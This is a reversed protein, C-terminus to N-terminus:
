PRDPGARAPARDSLGREPECALPPRRLAGPHRRPPRRSGTASRAGREWTRRSRRAWVLERLNPYAATLAAAAEVPFPYLQELRAVAVADSRGAGRPRRHRLLAQGLLARAGDGGRPRRRPDDIVPEFGGEALDDLTSRAQKLRLLGKPTMVVLPRATADLAQRRLLHFYQAATTCNAVRINEQAALQLFRELKASSHEPGNGEYGHPLLLTLRSRRDGSRSAPSSSSTSSSRPATSSTASSPRGSSSPTPRRSRTATSSGSCAYESLPSNYIEMSAGAEPLHQIPAYREGTRSRAPGRSPALLHRARHGPRLPSDPHGRHAPERVGAGRGPGLRHRGRFRRRAAARAAEAAETAGRVGGAARAAAREAGRAARRCPPSVAAARTPAPDQGGEDRRPEAISESAAARARRAARGADGRVAGRGGGRSSAKRSLSRRM